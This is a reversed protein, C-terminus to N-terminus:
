LMSFILFRTSAPAIAISHGDVNLDCEDDSDFTNDVYTDDNDAQEVVDVLGSGQDKSGGSDM